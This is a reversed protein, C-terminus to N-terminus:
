ADKLMKKKEAAKLKAKMERKAAKTRPSDEPPKFGGCDVCIKKKPKKSQMRENINIGLEDM